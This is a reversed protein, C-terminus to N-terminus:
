RTPMREAVLAVLKAHDVDFSRIGEALKENAMADASLQWRFEAEGLHLRDCADVSDPDLARVLQTHEKSLADLLAPSITLRDCGALARVQDTTRFSAAMVITSISNSKYYEYIRFVSAVGPDTEAHGGQGQANHWDTIRGVFPSILFAGADACAAAQALTFVLTLNCDIGDRQLTEAARIGEWTAALKILVRDSGIGRAAYDEVIERARRASAEADFSLRAEVETSVRGPVLGALEAGLAVTLRDVIRPAPLGRKVGDAIERGVIDRAAPDSMARLVLTPNTTCDVPEFRRVAEMDGTDAVIISMERLQDLASVM